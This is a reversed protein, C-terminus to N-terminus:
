LRAERRSKESLFQPAAEAPSRGAAVAALIIHPVDSFVAAVGWDFLERARAVDNVTYALVSYGARRIEAVVAPRLLRHDANITTCGLAEARRRWNGAPARVLLGRAIAPARDLAGTLADTVFSSIM